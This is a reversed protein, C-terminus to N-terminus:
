EHQILWEALTDTTWTPLGCGFFDQDNTWIGCNM